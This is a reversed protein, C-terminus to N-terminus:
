HNSPKLLLVKGDPLNINEPLKEPLEPLTDIQSNVPYNLLQLLPTAIELVEEKQVDAFIDVWQGLKGKRIHNPSEKKMSNLSVKEKIKGKAQDDLDIELYELIKDLEHDFNHLLREYFVFYINLDNQHTLYGGIHNIWDYVIITLNNNLYSEPNNEDVILFPYYRQIYTSFVFNSWSVLVDRPDRIIYILKDFKIITKLVNDSMQAHTWVFTSSNIYDDINDVPYRFINGIRYFAANRTIDFFNIDIQGKLQNMDWTKALEYIPQNEIFSEYRVDSYDIINHLITHLWFNGSKPLGIKLIHM